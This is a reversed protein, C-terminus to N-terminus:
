NAHPDLRGNRPRLIAYRSKFVSENSESPARHRFDDLRNTRPEESRRRSLRTYSARPEPNRKRRKRVLGENKPPREIVEYESEEVEITDQVARYASHAFNTGDAYDTDTSRVTYTHVPGPSSQRPLREDKITSADEANTPAASTCHMMLGEGLDEWETGSDEEIEPSDPIRVREYGPFEFVPTKKKYSSLLKEPDDPTWPTPREKWGLGPRRPAPRPAPTTPAPPVETAGDQQASDHSGEAEGGPPSEDESDAFVENVIDSRREGGIRVQIPGIGKSDEVLFLIRTYQSLKNLFKLCGSCPESDITIYAIQRDSDLNVQRLQKLQRILWEESKDVYNFETRLTDVVYWAALLVEVHGAHARGRFEDQMPGGATDRINRSFQFGIQKALHHLALSNWKKTDLCYAEERTPGNSYGSHACMLIKNCNKRTITGITKSKDMRVGTDFELLKVYVEIRKGKKALVHEFYGVDGQGDEIPNTLGASTPAKSTDSIEAM